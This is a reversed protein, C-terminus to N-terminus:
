KRHLPFLEEAVLNWGAPGIGPVKTVPFGQPADWSGDPRQVLYAQEVAALLPHDNASDGLGITKIRGFKQRFLVALRNVAAGKDTTAATVTHFRGGALLQLGAQKLLSSLQVQDEKSLPTLITASFERRRAAEAQEPPLATIRCIEDLSFDQYTSFELGTTERIAQLRTEIEISRVGLVLVQYSDTQHDFSFGFEFYDRPIFIASGNEVIFPDSLQFLQQYYAQEWRTKSSCLVVPVNRALLHAVYPQTRHSAYTSLDILTGDIDTFIIPVPPM